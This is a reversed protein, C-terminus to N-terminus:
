AWCRGAKINCVQQKSIGFAEAVDMGRHGAGLLGRIRDADAQTLKGHGGAGAHNRVDHLEMHAVNQCLRNRCVHHIQMGDPIPGNAAEWAVRHTLVTRGNVKACGYGTSNTGGQWDICAAGNM